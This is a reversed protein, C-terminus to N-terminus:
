WPAVSHQLTTNIAAMGTCLCGGETVKYKLILFERALCYFDLLVQFYYGSTSVTSLSFFSFHRGVAADITRPGDGQMITSEISGKV